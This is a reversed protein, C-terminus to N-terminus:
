FCWNTSRLISLHDRWWELHQAIVFLGSPSSKTQFHLSSSNYLASVFILAPSFDRFFSKTATLPVLSVERSSSHSKRYISGSVWFWRARHFTFILTYVRLCDLRNVHVFENLQVVIRHPMVKKIYLSFM